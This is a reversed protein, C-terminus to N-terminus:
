EYVRHWVGAYEPVIRSGAAAIKDGTEDGFFFRALREAETADSFTYDFPFCAHSFGHAQELAAYYPLLFAPPNPAAFGTGMTEFIVLTGGPRLVRRIEGLISALASGDQDVGAGASYAISWGSVVLDASADEAPIRLHSGEATRWNRAGSAALKAAAVELMAPSLDVALVSGARAALPVTLRGSGAGLDIVDLGALPRIADIRAGLSPQASILRDYLEAQSRYIEAHNPESPSSSAASNSSTM